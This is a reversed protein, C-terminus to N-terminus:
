CFRFFYEVQELPTDLRKPLLENLLSQLQQERGPVTHLQLNQSNLYSQLEQVLYTQVGNGSEHLQAPLLAPVSVGSVFVDVLETLNNLDEKLQEQRDIAMQFIRDNFNVVNQDVFIIYDSQWDNTVFIKDSLCMQELETVLAQLQRINDNPAQNELTQQIEATIRVLQDVIELEFSGSEILDTDATEKIAGTSQQQSLMIHAMLELLKKSTAALSPFDQLSLEVILFASKTLSLSVDSVSRQMQKKIDEIIQQVDLLRDYYSRNESSASLEYQRKNPTEFARETLIQRPDTIERRRHFERADELAEGLAQIIPQLQDIQSRLPIYNCYRYDTIIQRIDELVEVLIEEYAEDELASYRLIDVETKQLQRDETEQNFFHYFNDLQKEILMDEEAYQYLKDRLISCSDLVGSRDFSLSSLSIYLLDEEIEAFHNDSMVAFLQYASDPIPHDVILNHQGNNGINQRDVKTIILPIDSDEQGSKTSRRLASKQNFVDLASQYHKLLEESGLEMLLSEISNKADVPVKEQILLRNAVASFGDAGLNRFSRLLFSTTDNIFIKHRGLPQFQSNNDNEQDGYWIRMEFTKDYVQFRIEGRDLQDFQQRHVHQLDNVDISIVSGSMNTYLNAEIIQDFSVLYRREIVHAGTANDNTIALRPIQYEDHYYYSKWSLARRRMKELLQYSLRQKIQREQRKKKGELLVLKGANKDDSSGVVLQPLKDARQRGSLKTLASDIFENWKAM